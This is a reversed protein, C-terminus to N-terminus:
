RVGAQLPRGTYTWRFPKALTKNFYDIFDLIRRRLAEISSFSGRKLVRRVLIGFWIEIQNLWSSHKPTYVFRIRHSAESLFAKRTAVSKLVGSKGKKGLTEEPIGCTRGVLRVLGESCHINLQDVVFVWAANPDLAVTSEIHQVFDEETRTPGLTPAISEGTVVHFNGILTLTGHRKYEFERLEVQGPRTPHTPAIRELAQIGTMEDVSVTHTNCQSYLRPAELYCDCITQVQQAFGEPDREKDKSNLWYRSLHPKLDAQRLLDRVTSPSISDVIGRNIVEETLEKPTWHTVPRGSEEPPECAVAIIQALQEATFKGPSGSRPADSLVEVIAKKLASPGESCEVRVLREFAKAWRRRWMGVQHRELGVEAAIEENRRGEFALLVIQARQSLCSAETRSRSLRMLIDQQRETIITKAARGPM